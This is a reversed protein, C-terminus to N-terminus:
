ETQRNVQSGSAEKGKKLYELFFALSISIFTAVIFSLIVILSRKPKFKKDPVESPDIVKFTFYHQSKALMLKKTQDVVAEYLTKRVEMFPTEEIQKYLFLINANAEEIARQKQHDNLTEILIHLWKAAEKPDERMLAVTTLGNQKNIEVSLSGKLTRYADWLTPQNEPSAEKWGKKEKDWAEPFLLPMLNNTKVLEKIFVRSKLVALNVEQSETGVSIGAMSALGGFQGFLASAAGGSGGEGVPFLVVEARYIDPLLISYVIGALTTILIFSCVLVKRKVLIQWCEILSIEDDPMEADFSPRVTEGYTELADKRRQSSPQAPKNTTM